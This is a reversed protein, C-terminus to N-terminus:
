CMVTNACKTATAHTQNMGQDSVLLIEDSTLKDSAKSTHTFAILRIILHLQPLQQQKQPATHLSWKISQTFGLSVRILMQFSLGSVSLFQSLARFLNDLLHSQSYRSPTLSSTHSVAFYSSLAEDLSEASDWSISSHKWEMLARWSFDCKWSLSDCYVACILSLLNTQHWKGKWGDVKCFYNRLRSSRSATYITVDATSFQVM